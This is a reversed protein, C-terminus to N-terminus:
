EAFVRFSHPVTNYRKQAPDIAFSFALRALLSANKQRGQYVVPPTPLQRAALGSALISTM